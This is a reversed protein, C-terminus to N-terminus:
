ALFYVERYFSELNWKNCFQLNRCWCIILDHIISFGQRISSSTIHM